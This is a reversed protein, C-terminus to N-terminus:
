TVLSGSDGGPNATALIESKNIEVIAPIEWKKKTETTELNNNEM